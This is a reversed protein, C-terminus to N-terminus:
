SPVENKCSGPYHHCEILSRLNSPNYSGCIYIHYKSDWVRIKCFNKVGELIHGTKTIGCITCDISVPRVAGDFLIKVFQHYQEIVTGPSNDWKVRDGEDFCECNVIENM